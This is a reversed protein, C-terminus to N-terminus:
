VHGFSRAERREALDGKADYLTVDDFSLTTRLLVMASRAGEAATRAFVGNRTNLSRCEELKELLRAAAPDDKKALLPALRQTLRNLDEVLETKYTTIEALEDTRRERMLSLESELVDQLRELLQLAKDAEEPATKLNHM